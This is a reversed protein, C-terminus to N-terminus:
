PPVNSPHRTVQEPTSPQDSEQHDSPKGAATFTEREVGLSVLFLDFGIKHPDVAEDSDTPQSLRADM